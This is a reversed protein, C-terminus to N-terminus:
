EAKINAERVVQAWRTIEARLFTSLEAPTSTALEAGRASLFKVVEPRTLIKVLDRNLINVIPVPTAGTTMIAFWPGAVYGPLGSEAITPLDPVVPSRQQNTIAVARIRGDKAHPMLTIMNEFTGEFQTGASKGLEMIPALTQKTLNDSEAAMKQGFEQWKGTIQAEFALRGNVVGQIDSVFRRPSFKVEKCLLYLDDGPAVAHSIAALHPNMADTNADPLVLGM